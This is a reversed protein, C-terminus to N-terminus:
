VKGLSYHYNANKPKIEIAAKLDSIAKDFDKLEVYSLGRYNLARDHDRKAELVKSFEGIAAKYDKKNFYTGGWKYNKFYNQSFVGGIFFFFIFPFLINKM